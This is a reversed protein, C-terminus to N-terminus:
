FFATTAVTFAVPAEWQMRLLRSLWVFQVTAVSKGMSNRYSPRFGAYDFMPSPEFRRLAFHRSRFLDLCQQLVVALPVSLM